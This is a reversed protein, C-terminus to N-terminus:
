LKYKYENIALFKFLYLHYETSFKRKMCKIINIVNMIKSATPKVNLESIAYPDALVIIIKFTKSYKM